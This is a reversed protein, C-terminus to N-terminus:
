SASRSKNRRPRAYPELVADLDRLMWNGATGARYTAWTLMSGGVIAEVTRALRRIDTSRVLEGREVAEALLAEIGLRTHHSQKELNARLEPDGLDEALYALNRVFAAPSAALEAFCAVYDRLAALPSRHKARIDRIADTAISAGFEALRVQLGHKSGFRQVLLGPTVGAEGAIRALTLESPGVRRMVRMAAAFIEDDTAKQHAPM